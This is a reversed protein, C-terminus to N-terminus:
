GSIRPHFTLKFSLKVVGIIRFDDDPSIVYSPASENGAELIKQGGRRMWRKVTSGGNYWAIVVEGTAAIGNDRLEVIGYDGDVIGFDKMSDGCFRVLVENKDPNPAYQEPMVVREDPTYVMPEGEAVEAHLPVDVQGAHYDIVEFLSVPLRESRETDNRVDDQASIGRDRVIDEGYIGPGLCALLSQSVKHSPESVDTEIRSLHVRSIGLRAALKEQSLGRNRRLSAVREGFTTAGM